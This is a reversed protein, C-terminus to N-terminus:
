PKLLWALLTDGVAQLSQASVKDLTDQTTHWYPYDLDIIDVAPIGSEIFPIHDDLIPSRPELVFQSYGLDAATQWIQQTLLPDSNQEWLIKLDADGVMDVIIAADPMTQLSQVFARSGLIWDWGKIGGNDEADFFVLWIKHDVDPPLVRALELLVAVGSAGDNAGPVSESRKDLELDHDARLRSNYHAGLILWSKGEGRSAVLNKISKGQYTTEQIEVQWGADKLQGTLWKLFEAQAPSGPLRPGFGVQRQIDSLARDGNFKGIEVSQSVDRQSWAILFAGLGILIVVLILLIIRTKM